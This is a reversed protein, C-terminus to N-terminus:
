GTVDAAEDKIGTIDAAGVARSNTLAFSAPPAKIARGNFAIM